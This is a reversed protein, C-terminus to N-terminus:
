KPCCETKLGNLGTNDVGKQYPEIQQAVACIAWGLPCKPLEFVEPPPDYNLATTAECSSEM